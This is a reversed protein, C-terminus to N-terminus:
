MAKKIFFNMDKCGFKAATTYNTAVGSKPDPAERRPPELGKLRVVRFPQNKFDRFVLLNESIKKDRSFYSFLLINRIEAIKRARITVRNSFDTIPDRNPLSKSELTRIQM